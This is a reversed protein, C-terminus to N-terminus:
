IKLFTKKKYFFYLFLWCVAVYGCAIILAGIHENSFMSSLGKLFFENTYRFNIMRQALYILLSNCGIIKFFFVWKKYGKVDIIWYFLLLCLVTIGGAVLAFSSTWLSKNIPEWINWILGLLILSIGSGLLILCVRNLTFNSKNQIIEGALMGLLATGVAPIVAFLGEPDFLGAKHLRGPLFMRDIWGVISGEISYVDTGPVADPALINGIILSYILFIGFPIAIRIKHNSVNMYILCAFMWALGIRGLVSAVRLKEFDFKLLGNFVLGLLVLIVARKLIHKYMSKNTGGSSRRKSFSFPFSCGAIFLFTPFVMDMIRLGDWKAHRMQESLWELVGGGFIGELAYIIAPAGMIWFMDFGRFADLSDLRKNSLENNKM